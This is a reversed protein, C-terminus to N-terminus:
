LALLFMLDRIKHPGRLRSEVRSRAFVPTKGFSYDKTWIVEYDGQVSHFASGIEERLLKDIIYEHVWM